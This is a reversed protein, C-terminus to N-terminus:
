LRTLTSLEPEALNRGSGHKPTDMLERQHAIRLAEAPEFAQDLAALTHTNRHDCVLAIREATAYRPDDVLQRVQQAWDVATKTDTVRVDRGGALPEVVMSVVCVGARVSEYDVREPCGPAAPIPQRSETILHKPQEDMGVVPRKANSPRKSVELGQERQCVFAADQEPPIRWMTKLWPKLENTEPRPPRDRVLDVRRGGTGGPTRGPAAVVLPRPRRPGELLGLGDAPSAVRGRAEADRGAHRPAQAGDLSPAGREVAHQRWSELSRATLGYAAATHEDTWAPGELGPDGQLLAQARQVKWRAVRGQRVVRQLEAREAGTLKLVSKKPV